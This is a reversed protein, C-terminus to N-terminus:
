IGLTKLQKEPYRTGAAAGLPFVHSLRNIEDPSLQIDVAAANQELTSRRKTGPIPIIDKGQALVWGLAVQAPTCRHVGAIEEIPKLSTGLMLAFPFLAVVGLVILILWIGSGAPSFRLRQGSSGKPARM